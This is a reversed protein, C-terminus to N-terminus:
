IEEGFADGDSEVFSVTTLELSSKSNPSKSFAGFMGIVAAVLVVGTEENEGADTDEDEDRETETEGENTIEFSIWDSCEWDV